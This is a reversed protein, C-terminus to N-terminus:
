KSYPLTRLIGYYQLLALEVELYEQHPSTNTSKKTSLTTTLPHSCSKSNTTEDSTSATVRLSETTNSSYNKLTNEKNRMSSLVRGMRVNGPSRKENRTNQYPRTGRKKACDMILEYVRKNFHGLTEPNTWTKQPKSGFKM